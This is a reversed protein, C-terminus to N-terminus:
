VSIANVGAASPAVSTVQELQPRDPRTHHAWALVARTDPPPAPLGAPVGDNGRPTALVGNASVGVITLRGTGVAAGQHSVHWTTADPLRATASDTATGRMWVTADALRKGQADSLAASAAGLRSTTTLTARVELHDGPIDVSFEGPADPYAWVHQSIINEVYYAEDYNPGSAILRADLVTHGDTPEILKLHTLWGTTPSYDYSAFTAGYARSTFTFGADQTGDPLTVYAAEARTTVDYGYFPFSWEAGGELPFQYLPWEQGDIIPNHTPTVDGHFPLGFFGASINSGLHYGDPGSEHVILAVDFSFNEEITVRYAWFSGEDWPAARTDEVAALLEANPGAQANLCGSTMPM